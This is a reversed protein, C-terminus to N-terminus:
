GDYYNLPNLRQVRPLTNYPFIVVVERSSNLLLILNSDFLTPSILDVTVLVSWSHDLTYSVIDDPILLPFTRLPSPQTDFIGVTM